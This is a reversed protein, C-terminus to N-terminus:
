RGPEQNPLNGAYHDLITRKQIKGTPGKPLELWIEVSKPVKFDAIKDRCFARLDEASATSGVTLSVVAHIREGWRADPLGVVAVENVAPHEALVNEIETPFVNFGGTKIRFKARDRLYVYGEDDLRAMDGTHIWGDRIVERDKDPANWYGTFAVDARVVLEGTENIPLTHGDDDVIRMDVVPLPKGASALIEPRSSLGREHDSPMLMMSMGMLETTGFMQLFPRKFAAMAERITAPPLPSAGYGILRMSGLKTRGLSPAGLLSNLMTPVLVTNTTREREILQLAREANWPGVIVTAAAHFVNRMMHMLPIGAAPMAHLWRTDADIGECLAIYLTSTLFGAHPYVAGKPLGTSGTTYAIMAVDHPTQTLTSDRLGAAVLREYEADPKGFEIVGAPPPTGALLHLHDTHVFILRPACDAILARVEPPALRPNLGVRVAGIKVCAGFTEALEICDAALIVVRDGPAVNLRRMAHGLADTRAHYAGWTLRRAQDVFADKTAWTTGNRRILDGFTLM